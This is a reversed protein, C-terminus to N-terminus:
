RSGDVVAPTNPLAPVDPGGVRGASAATRNVGRLRLLYENEEADRFRHEDRAPNTSLEIFTCLSPKPVCRGEGGQSLRSDVMFVATRHDGKVGLYMLMPNSRSPVFSLRAVSAYRKLSGEPGFQVDAAYSYDTDPPTPDKDESPMKGKPSGGPSPKEAAPETTDLDDIPVLDDSDDVPLPTTSGGGESSGGSGGTSTSATTLSDPSLPSPSGGGADAADLQDLTQFPDRPASLDIDSMELPEDGPVALSVEKTPAATAAAYGTNIEPPGGPKLVIASIAVFTIALAVAIGAHGTTKLDDWVGLAFDKVPDLNLNATM